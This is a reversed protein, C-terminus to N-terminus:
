SSLEGVEDLISTSPPQSPPPGGGTRILNAREEAKARRANTKLNDWARKLTATERGIERLPLCVISKWTTQDKCKSDAYRERWQRGDIKEDLSTPKPHEFNPGRKIYWWNDYQAHVVHIAQWLDIHPMKMSIAHIEVEDIDASQEKGDLGSYDSTALLSEDYSFSVGLVPSAHGQLKNVVPHDSSGEIDLFYVCSDESGTVVCVGRRFSMIPCFTSKVSHTLHANDFRKKLVLSGERDAIRYLYLSNDAANVLLAPHRALWPSWSLCSVAGGSLCRRLKSLAGGTPEVRYSVIVGKGDCGNARYTQKTLGSENMRELRSLRRLMGREGRTMVDEKLGCRERVDSNRCRDKRSVGCMICLSRMEVANIRSENKEAM